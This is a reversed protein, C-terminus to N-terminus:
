VQRPARGNIGRSFGSTKSIDTHRRFDDDPRVFAAERLVPVHQECAMEGGIPRDGDMVRGDPGSHQCAEGPLGIGGYPLRQEDYARECARDHPRPVAPARIDDAASDGRSIICGRTHDL